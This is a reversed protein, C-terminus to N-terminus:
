SLTLNQDLLIELFVINLIKKGYGVVVDSLEIKGNVVYNIKFVDRSFIVSSKKRRQLVFYYFM